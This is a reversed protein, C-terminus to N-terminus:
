ILLDMSGDQQTVYKLYGASYFIEAQLMIIAVIFCIMLEFYFARIDLSFHPCNNTYVGKKWPQCEIYDRYSLDDLNGLMGFGPNFKWIKRFGYTRLSKMGDFQMIPMQFVLQIMFDIFSYFILWRQMINIMSWQQKAIQDRDTKKLKANKKQFKKQLV